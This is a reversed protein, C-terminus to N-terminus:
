TMELPPLSGAPRGDCRHETARGHCSVWLGSHPPPVQAPERLATLDVFAGADYASSARTLVELAVRTKGVGGPGTLTVLRRGQDGLLAVVQDVEADRGLLPAGPSPVAQAVASPAVAAGGRPPVRALLQAREEEDLGLAEALSRVTHPYPRTREARELAGVAKVTVGAREALEEQTLARAERL